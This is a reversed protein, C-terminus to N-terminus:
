GDRTGDPIESRRGVIWTITFILMLVVVAAAAVVLNITQGVIIYRLAEAAAVGAFLAALIGTTKARKSSTV